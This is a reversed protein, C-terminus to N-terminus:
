NNPCGKLIMNIKSPDGWVGPSDYPRDPYAGYELSISLNNNSIFEEVKDALSVPHGSCCNIIGTVRDQVATTAIMRALDQVSIFDYRNRGTTFPFSTQGAHAARFLKGFISQSDQDDGFIYFGRLWQLVFGREKQELILARRLADKAIGYLSLPDCPTNEDIPGEWYGVEHMSGMVVLHTTGFDVMKTLFRYHGSLDSMHSPSNHNFGDRWALHLCVDPVECLCNSPEFDPSLLDESIQVDACPADPAQVDLAVVRAGLAKLQPVVHRGIYGNAGSVLVTNTSM